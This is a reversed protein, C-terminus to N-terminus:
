PYQAGGAQTRRLDDSTDGTLNEHEYSTQNLVSNVVSGHWKWYECHGDAFSWVTGNNHRNGPVNWWINIMNPTELPYLAFCGDDLTAEAEDAFVIKQSVRTAQISSSKQYTNFTNGMYTEVYPGSLSGQSGGGGPGSSNGGCSIEISCTRTQPVLQNPKLGSGLPPSSPGLINTMNVPCQYIKVQQNYQFLLGHQVNASTYDTQANGVVWTNSAAGGNGPWNPPLFDNNDLIYMHWCIQLQKFNNLCQAMTARGKARNLAPLLIAALIAIIAIVVLLEILTFARRSAKVRSTLEALVLSRRRSLDGSRGDNTTASFILREDLTNRKKTSTNEVFAPVIRTPNAMLSNVKSGIIDGKNEILKTTINV